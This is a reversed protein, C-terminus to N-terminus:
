ANVLYCKTLKNVGLSVGISVPCFGVVKVPAAFTLRDIDLSGQEIMLMIFLFLGRNLGYLLDEIHTQPLCGKVM